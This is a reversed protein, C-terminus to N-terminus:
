KEKTLNIFYTNIFNPLKLILKDDSLIGIYLSLIGLGLAELITLFLLSLFYIFLFFNARPSLIKFINKTYIFYKM